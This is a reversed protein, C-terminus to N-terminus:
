ESKQYRLKAKESIKRKTEESHKKGFMPNLEAYRKVGYMGNKEGYNARSMRFSEDECLKLTKQRLIEKTQETHKKGYFGNSHGSYGSNGEIIGMDIFEPGDIQLIDNLISCNMKKLKKM